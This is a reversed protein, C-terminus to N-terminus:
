SVDYQHTEYNACDLYINKCKRALEALIFVPEDFKTDGGGSHAVLFNANKYTTCIKVWKNIDMGDHM